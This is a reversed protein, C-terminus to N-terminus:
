MGIRYPDVFNKPHMLSELEELSVGAKTYWYRANNPNNYVAAKGMERLVAAREAEPVLTELWQEAIEIKSQGVAKLFGKVADDRAEGAPLDQVWKGPAQPDTGAWRMFIDRLDETREDGSPLNALAWTAVRSLNREMWNSLFLNTVGRRIRYDTVSMLAELAIQHDRGSMGEAAAVLLADRDSGAPQNQVWEKAELPNKGGWKKVLSQLTFLNAISSHNLAYFLATKPDKEGWAEVLQTTTSSRIREDAIQDLWQLAADPNNRALSPLSQSLFETRESGEPLLTTISAVVASDLKPAHAITLLARHRDNSNLPLTNWMSAVQQPYNNAINSFLESMLQDKADSEPLDVAHALARAPDSTIERWIAPYLINIDGRKTAAEKVVAFLEPSRNREMSRIVDGMFREFQELPQTEIYAIAARQDIGLWLRIVNARADIKLDFDPSQDVWKSASEPDKSAWACIINMFADGGISAEFQLSTSAALAPDTNTLDLLMSNLIEKREAINPLTNVWALAAASDIQAWRSAIKQYAAHRPQPGFRDAQAIAGSPDTRALEGMLEGYLWDLNPNNFRGVPPAKEVLAQLVATPNARALPAFIEYFLITNHADPPLNEAWAMSANLNTQAWFSLVHKQYHLLDDDSIDLKGVRDLLEPFQAPTMTVLLRALQITMESEDKRLTSALAADLEQSSYARQHIAIARPPPEIFKESDLRSASETEGGWWFGAGCVALLIVVRGISAKASM